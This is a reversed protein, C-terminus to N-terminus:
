KRRRELLSTHPLRHLSPGFSPCRKDLLRRPRPGSEAHYWVGWVAALTRSRVPRIIWAASAAPSLERLIWRSVPGGACRGTKSHANKVRQDARDDARFMRPRNTDTGLRGVRPSSCCAIGSSAHGFPETDCAMAHFPAPALKDLAGPITVRLTLSSSSPFEESVNRTRVLGLSGWGAQLGEFYPPQRRSENQVGTAFPPSTRVWLDDLNRTGLLSPHRANM